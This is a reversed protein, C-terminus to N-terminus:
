VELHIETLLGLELLSQKIVKIGAPNILATTPSLQEIIFKATHPHSVLHQLVESSHTRLLTVNTVEEVRAHKEWQDALLMLNRPLPTKLNKELYQVLQGPKLGNQQALKLSAPTIEYCTEIATMSRIECFRALQYRLPRSAGVPINFSLDAAVKIPTEKTTESIPKDTNFLTFFLPTLKFATEAKEKGRGLDTMGLWHLPGNILYRILAGDVEDWHDFGRLFESSDTKRIFWLDYEGSSRQFDPQLTKVARTLATLSHWDGQTLGRLMEVIFLRPKLPDNHWDGEFVLGPISRLDNITASNLWATAWEALISARDKQFFQPLADPELEGKANILGSFAAMHAIFPESEVWAKSIDVPLNRGMRKAALWDTLHDIIRGDAAAIIKLSKAEVKQIALTSLLKEGPGSKPLLEDPIFVFERPQPPLNLFARGILGRYWLTEAISIPHQEPEERERRAPGFERVEGYKRTFHAWTIKQPNRQVDEWAAKVAEPLSALIESALAEDQMAQYLTEAAAALDLNTTDVSWFSSIRELMDLDCAQLMKKLAPM